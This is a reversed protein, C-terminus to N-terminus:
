GGGIFQMLDLNDDNKLKALAIKQRDIIEGNILIISNEQDLVLKELLDKLRDNELNTREGNLVINVGKENAMTVRASSQLEQM